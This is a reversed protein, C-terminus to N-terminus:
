RQLIATSSSHHKVGVLLGFWHVWFILVRLKKARLRVRRRPDKATHGSGQVEPYYAVFSVTRHRGVEPPNVHAQAEAAEPCAETTGFRFM